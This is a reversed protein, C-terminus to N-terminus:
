GPLARANDREPLPVGVPRASPVTGVVGADTAVIRLASLKPTDHEFSAYDRTTMFVIRGDFLPRPRWVPMETKVLAGFQGGVTQTFAGLWSDVPATASAMGPEHPRIDMEDAAIVEQNHSWLSFALFNSTMLFPWRDNYRNSTLPYKTGSDLHMLWLTTSRRAHGRGLDPTRSSAFAITHGGADAYVPDVDDYDIRRREDDPLITRGDAAYRMPPLATCGPDHAGGTLQRLGRGDIGIEYLRFHGHDDARRGAFLIKKTDLSISPSMVDIVTGGDPLPKGWTLEHVTGQPTLLRLRGERAQWLPQGPFVFVEGQPAAARFSAPESRSTFVLPIPPAHHVFPRLRTEGVDFRVLWWIGGICALAIASLWWWWRRSFM